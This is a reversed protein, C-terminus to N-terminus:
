VREFQQTAWSCDTEIKYKSKNWHRKDKPSQITINIFGAMWPFEPHVIEFQKWIKSNFVKTRFWFSFCFEIALWHRTMQMIMLSGREYNMRLFLTVSILQSVSQTRHFQASCRWCYRLRVRCPSTPQQIFSFTACAQCSFIEYFSFVTLTSVVSAEVRNKHWYKSLDRLHLHFSWFLFFLNVKHDAFPSLM